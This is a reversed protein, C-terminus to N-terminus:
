ESGSDAESGGKRKLRRLNLNKRGLENAMLVIASLTESDWVPAPEPLNTLDPKPYSIGFKENLYDYQELLRPWAQEISEKPLAFKTKGIGRFNRTGIGRVVGPKGSSRRKRGVTMGAVKNLESVLLLAELPLADNVRKDPIKAAAEQSLGIVEAFGEMLPRENALLGEMTVVRLDDEGFVAAFDDLKRYDHIEPKSVVAEYSRVGSKIQEQARSNLLAVPNRVICIVVLKDCFGQLYEKLAAIDLSNSHLFFTENSLLIDCNPNAAAQKEFELKQDHTLKAIKGEDKSQEINFRLKIPDTHFLNILFNHRAGKSGPYLLGYDILWDRSSHFLTQISTSGCKPAGIHLYCTRM